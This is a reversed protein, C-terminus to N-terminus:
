PQALTKVFQNLMAAVQARTANGQPNIIAAGKEDTGIGGIVDLKNMMQIANKAYDAIQAEDAFIRIEKTLPVEIGAWAMYQALIVAVDQRTIHADPAFRGPGVGAVIGNQAAWIVADQYWSQTLDTFPNEDTVAPRGALSYLVTVLMARTMPTNPAFTTASTGGFLAPDHTTVFHVSEYFWDTTKVDAFPNEWAAAESYGIVYLSLHTTTFTVTGTVPDYTTPMAELNGEDNLYYVV